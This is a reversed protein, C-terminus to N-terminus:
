KSGLRGSREQLADLLKYAPLYRKESDGENIVLFPNPITNMTDGLSTYGKDYLSCYAIKLHLLYDWIQSYHWDLIPSARMIQPWNQDTMQFPRLHESFPDSRRTGMLVAKMNPKKALVDTLSDKISKTFKLVDLSYYERSEEIFQNLEPFPNANEMYVCCIKGRYEPYNRRLVGITLHLLVTCDKGGNFSVFVNEPGYRKLCEEICEVSKKVHSDRQNYVLNEIDANERRDLVKCNQLLKNEYELLALMSSSTLHLIAVDSEARLSVHVESDGCFKPLGGKAEITLKRKFVIDDNFHTLFPIAINLISSQLLKMDDTLLFLGQVYMVPFTGNHTYEFCTAYQTTYEVSNIYNTLHTNEILQQHFVKAVAQWVLGSYETGIGGIFLVVDWQRVSSGIEKCLSEETAEVTARKVRYNISELKESIFNLINENTGKNHITLIKLTKEAM